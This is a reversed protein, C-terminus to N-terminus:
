GFRLLFAVLGTGDGSGFALAESECSLPGVRRDMWFRTLITIEHLIVSLSLLFLSTYHFFFFLSLSPWSEQEEM